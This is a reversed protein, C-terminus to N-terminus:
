LTWWVNRRSHLTIQSPTSSDEVSPQEWHHSPSFSWKKHLNFLWPTPTKTQKNQPFTTTFIAREIKHGSWSDLFCTQGRREVRQEGTFRNERERFNARLITRHQTRSGWSTRSLVFKISQGNKCYHHGQYKLRYVPYRRRDYPNKWSQFCLTRCEISNAELTLRIM